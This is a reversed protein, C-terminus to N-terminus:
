RGSNRRAAAVRIGHAARQSVDCRLPVLVMNEMRGICWIRLHMKSWKPYVGPTVNNRYIDGGLFFKIVMVWLLSVFPVLSALCTCSSAAVIFAWISATAFFTEVDVVGLVGVLGSLGPFVAFDRVPGALHHFSGISLVEAAAEDRAASNEDSKARPRLASPPRSSREAPPEGGKTGHQLRQAAGPGVGGM